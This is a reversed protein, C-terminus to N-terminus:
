GGKWKVAIPDRDRNEVCDSCSSRIANCCFM